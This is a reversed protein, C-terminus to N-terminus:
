IDKKNINSHSAVSFFFVLGVIKTTLKCYHVTRKRRRPNEFKSKQGVYSIENTLNTLGECACM